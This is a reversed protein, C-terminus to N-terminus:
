NYLKITSHLKPVSLEFEELIAKFVKETAQQCHFLALNALYENPLLEEAGKLDRKVYEVWDQTKQKM